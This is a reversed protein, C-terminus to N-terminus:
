KAACRGADCGVFGAAACDVRRQFGDQCFQIASGYCDPQLDFCETGTPVCRGAECRRHTANLACDTRTEFGLGECGIAVTGECSPEARPDCTREGLVCTAGGGDAETECKKGARACDYLMLANGSCLEAQSGRCALGAPCTALACFSFSGFAGLQTCVAGSRACDFAVNQGDLTCGTLSAGRCVANDLGSRQTCAVPGGDLAWCASAKACDGHADLLCQYVDRLLSDLGTTYLPKTELTGPWPFSPSPTTTCVELSNGFTAAFERPSCTQLTVCVRAADDAAFVPGNCRCGTFGLVAIILASRMSAAQCLM